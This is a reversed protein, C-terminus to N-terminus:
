LHHPNQNGCAAVDPRDDRLAACLCGKLDKECFTSHAGNLMVWPVYLGKLGRHRSKTTYEMAARDLEMGHKSTVCDQIDQPLTSARAEPACGPLWEEIRHSMPIRRSAYFAQLSADVMCLAFQMYENNPMIDQACTHVLNLECEDAGHQCAMTHSSRDQKVNGSAYMKFVVRQQFAPDSWVPKIQDHILDYSDPCLSEWFVEVEVSTNKQMAASAVCWLLPLLTVSASAPM